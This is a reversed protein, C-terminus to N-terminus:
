PKLKESMIRRHNEKARRWNETLGPSDANLAEVVKQTLVRRRRVKVKDEDTQIGIVIPKVAM